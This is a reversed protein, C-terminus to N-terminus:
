LHSGQLVFENPKIKSVLTKGISIQNVAIVFYIMYNIIVIYNKPARIRPLSALTRALHSAAAAAAARAPRGTAGRRVGACWWSRWWATGCAFGKVTGAEWVRAWSAVWLLHNLYHRVITDCHVLGYLTVFADICDQTAQPAYMPSASGVTM